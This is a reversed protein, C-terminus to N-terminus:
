CSRDFQRGGRISPSPVSMALRAPILRRNASAQCEESNIWVRRARTPPASVTLWTYMPNFGGYLTRRGGERPSM